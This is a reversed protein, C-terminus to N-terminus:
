ILVQIPLMCPSQQPVISVRDDGSMTKRNRGMLQHNTLTTIIGSSFISLCWNSPNPTPPASIQCDYVTRTIWSFCTGKTPAWICIHLHYIGGDIEKRVVVNWVNSVGSCPLKRHDEPRREVTFRMPKVIGCPLSPFCPFCSVSWGTFHLITEIKTWLLLLLNKNEKELMIHPAWMWVTIGFDHAQLEGNTGSTGKNGLNLLLRSSVIHRTAVYDRNGQFTVWLM